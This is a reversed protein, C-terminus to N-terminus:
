TTYTTSKIMSYIGTGCWSVFYTTSTEAMCGPCGNLGLLMLVIRIGVGIIRTSSIMGVQPITRTWLLLLCLLLLWESLLLKLRGGVFVLSRREFLLLLELLRCSWKCLRHLIATRSRGQLLQHFCSFPIFVNKTWFLTM